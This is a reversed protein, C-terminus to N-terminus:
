QNILFNNYMNGTHILTSNDHHFQPGLDVVYLLLELLPVDRDDEKFRSGKASRKQSEANCKRVPCICYM